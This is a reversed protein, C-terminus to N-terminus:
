NNHYHITAQYSIKLCSSNECRKRGKITQVFNSTAKIGRMTLNSCTDQPHSCMTDNSLQIETLFGRPYGPHVASRQKMDRGWSTRQPSVSVCKCYLVETLFSLIRCMGATASFIATSRYLVHCGM